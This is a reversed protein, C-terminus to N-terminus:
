RLLRRMALDVLGPALVSALPLLRSPWYPYARTMARATAQGIAGTM